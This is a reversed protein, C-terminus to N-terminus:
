CPVPGSPEAIAELREQEWQLDPYGVKLKFARFGDATAAAFFAFERRHHPPFRPRERLRPRPKRVRRAAPLAAPGAGQRSSGVAQDVAEAFISGAIQGGRPRLLRNVLM